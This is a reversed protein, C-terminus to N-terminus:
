PRLTISAVPLSGTRRRTGTVLFCRLSQITSLVEGYTEIYTYHVVPKRLSRVKPELLEKQAGPM